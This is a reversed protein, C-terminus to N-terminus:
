NWSAVLDQTVILLFWAFLFLLKCIIPTLLSYFKHQGRKVSRLHLLYFEHCIDQIMCGLSIFGFLQCFFLLVIFNVDLMHVLGLLQGIHYSRQKQFDMALLRRTVFFQFIDIYDLLYLIFHLFLKNFVKHCLVFNKHFFKAAWPISWPWFNIFLLNFLLDRYWLLKKWIVQKVFFFIVNQPLWFYFIEKAM